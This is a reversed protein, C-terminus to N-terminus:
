KLNCTVNIEGISNQGKGMNSIKFTAPSKLSATSLVLPAYGPDVDGIYTITSAKSDLKASLAEAIEFPVGAQISSLPIVEEFERETSLTTSSKGKCILNTKGTQAPGSKFQTTGKCAISVFMGDDQAELRVEQGAYGSQSMRLNKNLGEDVLIITDTGTKTKSSPVYKMYIAGFKGFDMGLFKTRLDIRNEYNGNFTMVAITKPISVSSNFYKSKNSRQAEFECQFSKISADIAIPSGGPPSVPGQQPAIVPANKRDNNPCAALVLLSALLAANKFIKTIIKQKM